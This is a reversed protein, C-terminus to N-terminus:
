DQSQTASSRMVHPVISDWMPDQTGPKVGETTLLPGLDEALVHGIAGRVVALSQNRNQELAEIERPKGAGSAAKASFAARWLIDNDLNVMEIVSRVALLRDRLRPPLRRAFGRKLLLELAPLALPLCSDCVAARGAAEELDRNLLALISVYERDAELLVSLSWAATAIAAIATVLTGIMSWDVHM